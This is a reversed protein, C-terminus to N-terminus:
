YIDDESPSGIVVGRSAYRRRTWRSRDCRQAPAGRAPTPTGARARAPRAGPPRRATPPLRPAPAHPASPPPALGAGHALPPPHGPHHLPRVAGLDPYAAIAHASSAEDAFLPDFKQLGEATTGPRVIEDYAVVGEPVVLSGSFRGQEWASAARQHSRAAYADLDGREFGELTAVLDAAFGMQVFRTAEAVEPDAFWAGKDSYIPVRSMSEVGGALIVDEMGSMIKAAGLNIADLGSACFRNVSVGSVRNPLGAYLAAVRALNAGQEGTQTVCGLVVDDVLEPDLDIREILAKMLASVLDIPKIESLGGGKRGKGRPTRVVDVIVVDRTSM